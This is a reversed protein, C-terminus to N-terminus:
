SSTRKRARDLRALSDRLPKTAKWSTSAYLDELKGTAEALAERQADREDKLADRERETAELGRRVYHLESNANELERSLEAQRQRALEVESALQDRRLTVPRLSQLVAATAPTEDGLSPPAFARHPGALGTLISILESQEASIELSGDPEPVQHRLGASISAVAAEADPRGVPGLRDPLGALWAGVSAVFAGPEDVVTGYEVVYTDLGDLNALALRNYREWLALGHPVPMGDRELLSRAVALPSRWVLLAALPGHLRSRWYPLLLCTRPDKWASPGEGGFAAALATEPDTRDSLTVGWEWGPPLVPPGDWTGGLLHLLAEDFLSLSLSEWHEPNSSNGTIRDEAVPMAYGLLGLAGTVASTGSRHMGVVLLLPHRDANSM